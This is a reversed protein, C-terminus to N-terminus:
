GVGEKFGVHCFITFITFYLKCHLLYLALYAFMTILHRPISLYGQFNTLCLPSLQWLGPWRHPPCVCPRLTCGSYVVPGSSMDRLTWTIPGQGTPPWPAGEVSAISLTCDCTCGLQRYCSGSPEPCCPLLSQRSRDKRSSHSFPNIPQRPPPYM